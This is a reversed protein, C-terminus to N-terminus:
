VNPKRRKVSSTMIRYDRSLEKAITHAGVAAGATGYVAGIVKFDRGINRRVNEGYTLYKYERRFPSQTLPLYSKAAMLAKGGIPTNSYVARSANLRTQYTAKRVAKSKIAGKALRKGYYGSTTKLGMKKVSKLASQEISRRAIKKAARRSAGKSRALASAKVAKALARKQAATMTRKSFRGMMRRKAYKALRSTVAKKVAM